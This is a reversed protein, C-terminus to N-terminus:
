RTLTKTRSEAPRAEGLSCLAELTECAKYAQNLFSLGYAANLPLVGAEYPTIAKLAASSSYMFM